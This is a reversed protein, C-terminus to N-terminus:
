PHTHEVIMQGLPLHRALYKIAYCQDKIVKYIDGTQYAVRGLCSGACYEGINCEKCDELNELTRNQLYKIKENDYVYEKKSSDWQGYIFCRIEEKTDKYTAKDCASVTGDPNLQPMPLCSRCNIKTKEDFNYTLSSSLICGLKVAEAYAQVFGKAFHMIDNQYVPKSGGDNRKVPTTIPNFCIYKLGMDAYYHLLESQKNLTEPGITCRVGVFAGKQALYKMNNEIDATRGNGFEDPRNRDNVEAWGDLSFWIDNINDAIWDMDEKSQFLGNTQLEIRIDKNISRAYRTAEKIVEMEQTPEGPAFFRLMEAAIGTPYGKLADSIGKYVMEIDITIPNSQEDSSSAMCYICRLNCKNTTNVTVARKDSHKM